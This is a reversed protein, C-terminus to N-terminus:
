ANAAARLQQLSRALLRSVHMQSIGVKAAIASQPLGDFFRLKLIAREREPLAELAPVLWAREEVMRYGDEVAPQDYWGDEDDGRPADLSAVRLASRAELSEIVQEESVGLHAALESPTPTRGIRHTLDESASRVALYLEQVPRAVHLTWAHDRFYRKLEGTITAQAYTSFQVERTADYRQAATVLGLYAVQRLDELPQGRGAFRGALREALGRHDRILAEVDTEGERVVQLARPARVCAFLEDGADRLAAFVQRSPNALVFSRGAEEAIRRAEDLVAVGDADLLTVGRLDLVVTPGAQRCASGVVAVVPAARDDIDGIIEVRVTDTRTTDLAAQMRM